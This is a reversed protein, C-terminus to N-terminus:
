YFYIFFHSVCIYSCPMDIVLTGLTSKEEHVEYHKINKMFFVCTFSLSFLDSLIILALCILM